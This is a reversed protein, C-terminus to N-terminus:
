RARTRTVDELEDKAVSPADSDGSRRPRQVHRYLFLAVLAVLAVAILLDYKHLVSGVQQWHQGLKYGALALAFCWPLSGLFTYITFKMFNMRAIGAPLSIFTRVIPMLRTAFITADGYRAFFVDARNADRPSILV